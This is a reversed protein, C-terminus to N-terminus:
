RVPCQRRDQPGGEISLDFLYPPNATDDCFQQAAPELVPKPYSM